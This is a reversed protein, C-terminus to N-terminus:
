VNSDYFLSDFLSQTTVMASEIHETNKFCNLGDKINAINWVEVIIEVSCM